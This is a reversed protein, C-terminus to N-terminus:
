VLFLLLMVDPTTVKEAGRLLYDIAEKMAKGVDVVSEESFEKYYRSLGAETLSMGKVFQVFLDAAEADMTALLTIDSDLIKRVDPQRESLPM